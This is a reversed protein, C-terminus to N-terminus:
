LSSCPKRRSNYRATTHEPPNREAGRTATAAPISVPRRTDECGLSHKGELNVEPCM